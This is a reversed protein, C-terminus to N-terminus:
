NQLLPDKERGEEEDLLATQYRMETELEAMAAALEAQSMSKDVRIPGGARFRLRAFPKPLIFHDWSDFVWARDVGFSVWCIRRGTSAALAIIGDKLRYRPGVPGDPTIAIHSSHTQTVLQRFAEAGGRTSSGRVSGIGFRSVIRAIIEGDGHRSVLVKVPELLGALALIGIQRNHWFALIM